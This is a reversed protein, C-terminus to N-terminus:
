RQQRTEDRLRHIDVLRRCTVQEGTITLRQMAAISPLGTFRLPHRWREPLFISVDATYDQQLLGHALTHWTYVASSKMPILDRSFAMMRTAGSKLRQKHNSLMKRLTRLPAHPDDVLALGAPNAMSAVFHEIGYLETLLASPLDHSFSGDIWKRGPQYDVVQGNATRQQLVVAPYLGPVACSAEVASHILVDPTTVASLLGPPQDPALGTVVINLQRRTHIYAEAFIMDPVLGSLYTQLIGAGQRRRAKFQARSAHLTEAQLRAPLAQDRHTGAIAALIAGASSGSIVKPLLGEALLVRLVGAHFYGWSAGGSLMLAFDDPAGAADRPLEVVGM